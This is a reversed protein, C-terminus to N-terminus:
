AAGLMLGAVCINTVLPIREDDTVLHHSLMAINTLELTLIDDFTLDNPSQHHASTSLLAAM